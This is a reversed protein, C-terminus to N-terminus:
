GEPPLSRSYVSLTIQPSSHGLRDAIEAPSLKGDHLLRSASLHRLDHPSYRRIGAKECARRMAARVSDDTVGPFVRDQDRMGVPRVGLDPKGDVQVVLREGAATKDSIRLLKRENNWQGWTINVISSVRAGTEELLRVVPVYKAPLPLAAYLQELEGRTPMRHRTRANRPKRLDPDKVPNPRVKGYALIQSLTMLRQGITSPMGPQSIIWSQVDDVTISHPDRDAWEANLHVISSKFHHMTNDAVDIRTALWRDCLQALTEAPAHRKAFHRQPTVGVAIEDWAMKQRAQAFERSPYSGLHIAPDDPHLQARVHYRFRPKGKPDPTIRRQVIYVSAM